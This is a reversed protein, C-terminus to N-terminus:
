CCDIIAYCDKPNAHHTTSILAVELRQLTMMKRHNESGISIIINEAEGMIVLFLWYFRRRIILQM